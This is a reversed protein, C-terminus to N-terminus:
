VWKSGPLTLSPSSVQKSTVIVAFSASDVSATAPVNANKDTPLMTINCAVINTDPANPARLKWVISTDRKTGLDFTTISDAPGADFAVSACGIQPRFARARDLMKPEQGATLVVSQGALCQQNVLTHHGIHLDRAAQTKLMVPIRALAAPPRSGVLPAIGLYVADRDGAVAAPYAAGLGSLM